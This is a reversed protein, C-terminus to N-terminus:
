IFTHARAPAAAVLRESVELAARADVGTGDAGIEAVLGPNENIMHGGVLVSLHPNIAVGRIGKILSSLAAAPCDRSVTLGVLDVPKRALYDLLERREPKLLVETQWGARAFVEEIMQAGFCHTDGPIPCFLASRPAGLQEAPPPFRLSVERMVEQLRWLGMTVDVFDCEDADWMEGLRRAAPALLELYVEEVSVGQELFRDIEELLGPAELRLPLAAFRETDEADIVSNEELPRISGDVMHAMLLRPIIDGELVSNVVDQSACSNFATTQKPESRTRRNLPNAIVKRLAATGAGLVSGGSKATKDDPAAM